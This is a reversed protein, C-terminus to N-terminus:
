RKFKNTSVYYLTPLVVLTLFTAASLGWVVVTAMPAQMDSNGGLNLMLPLLGLIATLATMFIPRLRTMSAEFILERLDKNKDNARWQNIFDILVIGNNVVLGGVLIIGMGSMISLSHGSILLGPVIGILSMPITFLILFPQWLSEFESAMVMYVFLISLILIIQLSRNSEQVAASEGLLQISLYPYKKIKTELLLNIDEKIKELSVKQRSASVIITREQDIRMIESPGEGKEISAVADLPINMGLPSNILLGGLKSIDETDQKRIGLHIDIEKGQERFKSSIKGKVATLVTNALKAVTLNYSALYEKNVNISIEPGPVSVTTGVDRTGEIKSLKEKIENALLTMEDLEHGKIEIVIPKNHGPIGGQALANFTGGQREISLRAGEFSSLLEKNIQQNFDSSIMLTKRINEIIDDVSKRYVNHIQAVIQSQHKGLLQVGNDAISGVTVSCHKIEKKDLLKKEIIRAVRDTVELRTGVPLDVKVMFQTSTAKPFLEKPVVFLLLVAFVLSILCFYVIVKRPKNFCYFLIKKYYISVKNGLVNNLDKFKAANSTFMKKIKSNFGIYGNERCSFRLVKSMTSSIKPFPFTFKSTTSLSALMPVLTFAVVLSALLSYIIALSLDYFVQGIIGPVFILPLFVVVTTLISGIVSGMVEKAGDISASIIDKGKRHRAINEQVVISADVLQGIGLILGAMSITNITVGSVHLLFLAALISIPISISVIVADKINGLFLLIVIFALIAGAIGNLILDRISEKIYISQDYVIELTVDKPLRQKIRDFKAKCAEAVDVIYADGQKLISVSINEKGDYRSFSSNEKYDDIVKGLTGLRVIRNNSASGLSLENKNEKSPLSDKENINMSVNRIDDLNKFVGVIRVTYEYIKDKISGAPFTINTNKIKDVLELISIKHADLREKEIEVRIERERGGMLSVQAVGTVKEFMESVPRKAIELLDESSRNGSLSLMLVPMAFPNFREIRPDKCERPLKGKILDIKERLNLSAFDMDTGWIFEVTVFSIGERSISYIRRVGRVTGCAEEVVKTVLNEVEKTSAHQYSSIVTLQPFELNPMFEKPLKNWSIIGLMFILIFIMTVTVKRKIFFSIIQM